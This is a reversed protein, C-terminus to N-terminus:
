SAHHFLPLIVVNGMRQVNSVVKCHGPVLESSIPVTWDVDEEESVDIM